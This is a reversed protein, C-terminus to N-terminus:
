SRAHVAFYETVRTALGEDNLEHIAVVDAEVPHGEAYISDSRITTAWHFELVVVHDAVLSRKLVAKPSRFIDGRRSAAELAANRDGSRGQPCLNSPREMWTVDPSYLDLMFRKSGQNYGDIWRQAYTTIDFMSTAEQWVPVAFYQHGRTVTRAILEFRNAV